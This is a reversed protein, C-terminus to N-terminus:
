LVLQGSESDIIKFVQEETLDQANIYVIYSTEKFVGKFEYCLKETNATLPILALRVSKVELNSSLMGRAEDEGALGETSIDREVHSMWYNRADLGIIQLTDRDVWVKVLDSYLIVDDQVSAFNLVACGDYYQAYNAEMNEFGLEKLRKQAAQRLKESEAEDGKGQASGTVYSMFTLVKGGAQTISIDIERQNQDVAAFDYSPIVGNSDGRSEVGMGLYQEALQRAKEASVKEQPLGKPEAKLTSESFPGDYILTPFEQSGEKDEIWGEGESTQAYYDEGSLSVMPLQNNQIREDMLGSLQVASAQLSELQVMDEESIPAGSLVRKTLSRAFDGTQVLFRNLTQADVHSTPLQSLLGESSGSLRWLDDLLLVYQRPSGVVAVKELIVGMDTINAALEIYCRNYMNRTTNEFGAARTKQEMGWFSVAALAVVLVAPVVINWVIRRTRDMRKEKERRERNEQEGHEMDRHETNM